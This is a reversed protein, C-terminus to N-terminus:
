LTNCQCYVTSKKVSLEQFALLHKLTYGVSFMKSKIKKQKNSHFCTAKFPLNAYHFLGFTHLFGIFDM